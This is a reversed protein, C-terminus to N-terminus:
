KLFGKITSARRRSVPVEENNTLRLKKEEKDHHLSHVKKMNVIYSRHSRIYHDPLLDEYFALNYTTIIKSLQENKVITFCTYAGEAKLYLISNFPISEYYGNNRLVINEKEEEKYSKLRLDSNQNEKQEEFYEKIRGISEKLYEISLPKLIYDLANLRFTKIAFEDYATVFIIEFDIPWIRKIFDIGTENPMEIDLFVLDPKHKLILQEAETTNHAFDIIEVEPCYKKILINLNNCADLEDDVIITKIPYPM